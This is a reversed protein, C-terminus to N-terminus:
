GGCKQLAEVIRQREFDRLSDRVDEPAAAPAAQPAATAPAGARAVAPPGGGRLAPPLHAIGIPEGTGGCFAAAREIVNRLERVNGPWGHRELAALAEPTLRLQPQGMAAAARMVFVEALRRIEGRRERLPPIALVCANLRFLLDQRFRKEVVCQELDCNTAAIVRVDVKRESTAGVRRVSHDELVRLLKAQMPMALEGIEDLFLTGGAAAEILGAKASAAGSFAGKEYGFLESEVLQEPLAATNVCILPGTRGSAVHIARAFVEKGSGTEGVLLVNINSKAVRRAEDYLQLMAKDAVIPQEATDADEEQASLLAKLATELLHEGDGDKESAFGSAADVGALRLTRSVTALLALAEARPLRAGFALIHDNYTGAYATGALKAVLDRAAAIEYWHEPLQLVFLCPRQQTAIDMDVRAVFARRVLVPVVGAPLAAPRLLVLRADGVGVEDGPGVEQQGDVRARNVYTGNRSGLDLVSARQGRMVLRAHARSVGGSVLQLDAEAGRGLDVTGSVPLEVAFSHGGVLVTACLAEVDCFAPAVHHETIVSPDRSM